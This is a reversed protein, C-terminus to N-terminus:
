SVNVVVRDALTNAYPDKKVKKYNYKSSNILKTFYAFILSINSAFTRLSIRVTIAFLVYVAPM